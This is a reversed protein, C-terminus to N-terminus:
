NCFYLDNMSSTLQIAKPVVSSTTNQKIITSTLESIINSKNIVSLSNSFPPKVLTICTTIEKLQIIHLEPAPNLQGIVEFYSGPMLLIEKETNKFYSHNAVSKGNICEISFLTREGDKSLFENSELVQIHTTCFSVGWWAFKTGIKYKSSLDLNKVGRWVIKNQSPLKHLATLFLKLFSFWPILEECNEARLSQNLLVYLSSGGHFQM